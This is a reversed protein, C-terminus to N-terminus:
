PMRRGRRQERMAELQALQDETLISALQDRFSERDHMREVRREAMLSRIAEEQEESLDLRALAHALRDGRRSRDRHRARREKMTEYQRAQDADLVALIEHDLAERAARVQDRADPNPSGEEDRWQIENHVYNRHEEFLAAITAAQEDSLDLKETLHDIPGRALALSSICLMGLATLTSTFRFIIM